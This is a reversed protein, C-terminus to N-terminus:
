QSNVWGQTLMLQQLQALALHFQCQTLLQEINALETTLNTDALTEQLVRFQSIADFRNQELLPILKRIMVMIKSVDPMNVTAAPLTAQGSPVPISSAHLWRKLLVELKDIMVPKSLFEDMGTDLCRQRDEPFADSTVAIIPHRTHGTETEWQRIKTTTTYGDMIPMHLDMLILDVADGNTLANLAQQGNNACKVMLGLQHLFVEIVKCNIQDDEVVLVRGSLQTPRVASAGAVRACGQSVDLADTAMINARIRFWFKSGGEPPAEFGADGGMLRALSRVISLGLGTGGHQRTISNDLQSFPEFLLPQLHESIGIGSDTVAFELVATNQEREIETAEVQVYGDATFKIANSVLNSLMQRLRQPDGKYCTAAGSWCCDLLLLKTRATGAFLAKIEKLVQQPYLPIDDLKLKGAEVKSFDLIDNLLTLLIQGSDLITRSYDKVEAGTTDPLLLLQAMGLIGNMPTRIEHSMTALFRSKALNAQQAREQAEILKAEAHKRETINVAIGGLLPPLGYRSMRFKHTEYIRTEGDAATVQEETVIIGHKLAANDDMTMKAAAVSPFLDWVTKGLWEERVQKSIINAMHSNIHTFRGNEKIFMAAPMTEVLQAFREESSRLSLQSQRYWFYWFLVSLLAILIFALSLILIGLIRAPYEIEAYNIKTIMIWATHAIPQTVGIVKVGGYDQDTQLGFKDHVLAKIALSRATIPLHFALPMADPRYRLPSLFVINNGKREALITETSLSNAFRFRLVPYLEKSAEREFYVLGVMKKANKSDTIFIPHVVGFVIEGGIARHLDVIEMGGTKVAQRMASWETVGPQYSSSPAIAHININFVLVRRYGQRNKTDNIVKNLLTIDLASATNALATCVYPHAVFDSLDGRWDEFLEKIQMAKMMSIGRLEDEAHAIMKSSFSQYVWYASALVLVGLFLCLVIFNFANRVPRSAGDSPYHKAFQTRVDTESVHPCDAPYVVM